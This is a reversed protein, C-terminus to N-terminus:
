PPRVRHRRDHRRPRHVRHGPRALATTVSDVGDAVVLPADVEFGAGVLRERVAPGGRDPRTGEAVGDSM